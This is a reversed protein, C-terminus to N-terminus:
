CAHLEGVGSLSELYLRFESPKSFGLAGMENVLKRNGNTAPSDTFGEIPQFCALERGHGQALCFRATHMAGGNVDTEIVFVCDSLGSQIRDRAVFAWRGVKADPPHESVLAGGVEVISRALDRNERPYVRDLGQAMVAITTGGLRVCAAHAEADCGHALGSVVAGGGHVVIESVRRAVERGRETPERTGVVAVSKPHELAEVNGQVYLLPPASANAPKLDRLSKLREPYGDNFFSYVKIDLSNCRDLIDIGDRWASRTQEEPVESKGVSSALQCFVEEAAPTNGGTSMGSAASWREVSRFAKDPGVRPLRMLALLLLRYDFPDSVSADVHCGRVAMHADIQQGPQNLLELQDTM